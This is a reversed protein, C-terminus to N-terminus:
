LFANLAAVSAAFIGSELFPLRPVPTSEIHSHILLSINDDGALLFSAGLVSRPTQSKASSTPSFISVGSPTWVLIPPAYRWSAPLHISPPIPRDLPPLRVLVTLPAFRSLIVGMLWRPPRTSPLIASRKAVSHGTVRGRRRPGRGPRGRGPRPPIDWTARFFQEPFSMPHACSPNCTCITPSAPTRPAQPTRDPRWPVRNSTPPAYHPKQTSAAKGWLKILM